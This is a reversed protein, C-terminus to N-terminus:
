DCVLAAATRRLGSWVTDTPPRPSLAYTIAFRGTRPCERLRAEVNLVIPRGTTFPDYSFVQGSLESPDLGPAPALVARFRTSDLDYKQKGVSMALGRFYKTLSASISAADFVPRQELWWGIDYSWFTAANSSYFDPAFRLEEVGRYPLEPAFALPFPNAERAWGPPVPWNVQKATDAVQRPPAARCSGIGIPILIRSVHRAGARPRFVRRRWAQANPTM